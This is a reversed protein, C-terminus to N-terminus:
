YKVSSPSVKLKINLLILQVASSFWEWPDVHIFLELQLWLRTGSWSDSFKRNHFIKESRYCKEKHLVLRLDPPVKLRFRDAAVVNDFVDWVMLHVIRRHYNCSSWTCKAHRVWNPSRKNMNKHIFLLVSFSHTKLGLLNHTYQGLIRSNKPKQDRSFFFLIINLSLDMLIIM